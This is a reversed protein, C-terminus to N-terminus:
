DKDRLLDVFKALSIKELKQETKKRNKELPNIWIGRTPRPNCPNAREYKKVM